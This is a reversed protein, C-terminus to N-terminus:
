SLFTVLDECFDRDATGAHGVDKVLEFSLEVDDEPDGPTGNYDLVAVFRFQGSDSFLRDGDPGIVHTRGVSQFTITITGDGNDVIRQDADRGVTLLTFTKGNELNTYVEHFKFNSAFYPFPSQGKLKVVDLGRAEIEYLTLFEVNPCFEDGHEEQEIHSDSFSFHEHELLKASSTPAAVWSLLAAAAITILLTRRHRM